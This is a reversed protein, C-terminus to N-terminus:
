GKKVIEVLLTGAHPIRQKARAVRPRTKVKAVKERVKAKAVVVKAKVVVVKAVVVKAKAVVVKTRAKARVAKEVKVEVKANQLLNRDPGVSKKLIDTVASAMAMRSIQAIDM